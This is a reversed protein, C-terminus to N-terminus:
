LHSRLTRWVLLHAIVAILILLCLLYVSFSSHPTCFGWCGPNRYVVSGRYTVVGNHAMNTDSLSVEEIGHPGCYYGRVHPVFRFHVARNTDGGGYPENSLTLTNGGGLDVELLQDGYTMYFEDLYDLTIKGEQESKVRKLKELSDLVFLPDKDDKKFIRLSKKSEIGLNSIWKVVGNEEGMILNTEPANMNVPTNKRIPIYKQDIYMTDRYPIICVYEREDKEKFKLDANLWKGSEVNQIFFHDQYYVLSVANPPFNYLTTDLFAWTSCDSLFPYISKNRLRYIPNLFPHIGTRIPVFLTGGWPKSVFYGAAVVNDLYTTDKSLSDIGAEVSTYRNEECMGTPTDNCDTNDMYEFVCNPFILYRDRYRVPKGIDFSM